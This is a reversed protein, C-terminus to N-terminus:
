LLPRVSSVDAILRERRGNSEEVCLQYVLKDGVASVCSGLQSWGM